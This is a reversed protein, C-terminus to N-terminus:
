GGCRKYISSSLRIDMRNINKRMAKIEAQQRQSQRQSEESVQRIIREIDKCASQDISMASVSYTGEYNPPGLAEVLNDIRLGHAESLHALNDYRRDIDHLKITYLEGTLNTVAQTRQVMDLVQSYMDGGSNSHPVLGLSSHGHLHVTVISVTAAIFATMVTAAGSWAWDKFRSSRHECGRLLDTARWVHKAARFSHELLKKLEETIAANAESRAAESLPSSEMEALYRATKKDMVSFGYTVTKSVRTSSEMAQSISAALYEEPIRIRKLKITSKELESVATNLCPYGGYKPWQYLPIDEDNQTTIHECFQHIQSEVESLCRLVEDIIIHPPSYQTDTLKPHASSTETKATRVEMSQKLKNGIRPPTSKDKINAIKSEPPPTLLDASDKSDTRFYQATSLDEAEHIFTDSPEQFASPHTSRCDQKSCQVNDDKMEQFKGM